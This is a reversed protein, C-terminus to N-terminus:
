KKNQLEENWDKRNKPLNNEFTLLNFEVHQLKNLAQKGAIDNDFCVHLSECNIKLELNKLGYKLFSYIKEITLGNISM